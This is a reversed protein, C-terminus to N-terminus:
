LYLIKVLFFILKARLIIESMRKTEKEVILYQLLQDNELFIDNNDRNRQEEYKNQYAILSLHSRRFTSKM